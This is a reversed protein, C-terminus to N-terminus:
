PTNVVLQAASGSSLTVGTCCSEINCHIVLQHQSEASITRTAKHATEKGLTRIRAKFQTCQCLRDFCSLLAYFAMVVFDSLANELKVVYHVFHALYDVSLAPLHEPTRINMRFNRLHTVFGNQRNNIEIAGFLLLAINPIVASQIVLEESHESDLRRVANRRFRSVASHQLKQGLKRVFSIRSDFVQQLFFTEVHAFHFAPEQQQRNVLMPHIMDICHILQALTDSQACHAILIGNHLVAVLAKIHKFGHRGLYAVLRNHVEVM